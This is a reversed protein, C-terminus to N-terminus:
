SYEKEEDFYKEFIEKIKVIGNKQNEDFGMKGFLEFIETIESKTMEGEHNSNEKEHKSLIEAISNAVNPDIEADLKLGSNGIEKYIQKFLDSTKTEIIKDYIRGDRWMDNEKEKELKKNLASLLDFTSGINENKPTNSPTNKLSKNIKEVNDITNIIKDIINEVQKDNLNMIKETMKSVFDKLTKPAKEILQKGLHKQVVNNNARIKTKINTDLLGGIGKGSFPLYIPSSIGRFKHTTLNIKQHNELHHPYQHPSHQPCQHPSQHPSKTKPPHMQSPRPGILGSSQKVGVNEIVTTVRSAKSLIGPLKPAINTLFNRNM